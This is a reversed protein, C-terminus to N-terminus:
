GHSMTAAVLSSATERPPRSCRPPRDPPPIASHTYAGGEHAANRASPTTVMAKAALDMKPMTSAPLRRQRQKRISRNENMIVPM